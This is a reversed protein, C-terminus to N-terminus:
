NVMKGELYLRAEHSSPNSFFIKSSKYEMIKGANLFVVDDALRKAQGIDHTVLIIKVGLKYANLIIKEINLTSVPDLNLSPEDLLLVSPQLALARAIVLRQQEGGSLSRAPIKLKELLNVEELLQNRYIKNNKNLGKLVFDINAAVSRRLLVPKQFVMAQKERIMKNICVNGWKIQGRTPTLLGHILKLFISKGSGNPGLIVTLGKLPILININDIIIKKNIKFSLNSVDLPHLSFNLEKHKKNNEKKITHFINKFM